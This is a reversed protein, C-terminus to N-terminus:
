ARLKNSSENIDLNKFSNTETILIMFGEHYKEVRIIRLSSEDLSFHHVSKQICRFRTMNTNMLYSESHVRLHTAM